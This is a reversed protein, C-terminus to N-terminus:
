SVQGSPSNRKELWDMVDRASEDGCFRKEIEESLATQALKWIFQVQSKELKGYNAMQTDFDSEM